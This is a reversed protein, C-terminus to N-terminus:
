INKKIRCINKPATNKKITGTASSFVEGIELFSLNEYKAQNLKINDLINPFLEGRLHTHLGSIPNALRVLGAASMKLKVMKEENLFSYNLTETIAAGLTLINKVQREFLREQNSIPAEMTLAPKKSEINNYGYIRAIEELIDVKIKVDKTSRWTPITVKLSHSNGTEVSFGLATLIKVAQKKSLDSGLRQWLWNLDIELVAQTKSSNDVDTIRSSIQAEPCTERIIELVRALAIPCLAPDLAKEFRMSAETRLALKTSIKRISAADFNAAELIISTTDQSIEGEEAGMVGAIAAPKDDNAILLIEENLKRDIGDLTKITENKNARRVIIKKIKKADFAHLPQGLELMVYNTADVINNIPRMGVATLREQIQKPSDKIKINSIKVAMYRPCLKEDEVKVLIKTEDCDGEQPSPRDEPTAASIVSVAVHGFLPTTKCNLIASLERAIGLHGWLDPRNSLSKNDVELIIDNLKLYEGFNQGIKAKTLIMIGEHNEGIGLEDEACIM